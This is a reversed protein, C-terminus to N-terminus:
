TMQEAPLVKASYAMALTARVVVMGFFKSQRCAPVVRTSCMPDMNRQRMSIPGEASMGTYGQSGDAAAGLLAVAVWLLVTLVRPM